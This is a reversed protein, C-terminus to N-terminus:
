SRLRAFWYGSGLEAFQEVGVIQILKTSEFADYSCTWSWGNKQLFVNKTQQILCCCHKLICRSVAASVLLCVVAPITCITHSHNGTEWLLLSFILCSPEDVLDSLLSFM